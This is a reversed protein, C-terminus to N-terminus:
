NPSNELHALEIKKLINHYTVIRIDTQKEKAFNEAKSAGGMYYRQIWPIVTVVAAIFSYEKALLVAVYFLGGILVTSNLGDKIHGTYYQGTGPFIISLFYATNPNYRKESKKIVAFERQIVSDSAISLQKLCKNFALESLNDQHLGFYAIGELFNLKINHYLTKSSDINMLESIAMDYRNEMILSFSKGLIAEEKISDSNTSYFARDYFQISQEFRNMSFYCNAIRLCIQDSQKCGFFLARNYENAALEFNGNAYHHDSFQIIETLNQSFAPIGALEIILCFIITPKKLYHM